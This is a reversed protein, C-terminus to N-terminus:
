VTFIGFVISTKSGVGTLGFYHQYQQMSNIGGMVTGDFGSDGSCCCIILTVLYMQIAAWSFRKVGPDVKLAEQLALQREMPTLPVAPVPRRMGGKEDSSPTKEYHEVDVDKDLSSHSVTEEHATIDKKDEM